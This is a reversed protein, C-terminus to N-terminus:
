LSQELDNTVVLLPVMKLAKVTSARIPTSQSNNMQDENSPKKNKITESHINQQNSIESKSQDSKELISTNSSQPQSRNLEISTFIKEEVSSLKENKLNEEFNGLNGKLLNSDARTVDSGLQLSMAQKLVRENYIPALVRPLDERIESVSSKRRVSNIQHSSTISKGKKDSNSGNNVSGSSLVNPSLRPSSNEDETKLKNVNIRQLLVGRNSHLSTYSEEDIISLM